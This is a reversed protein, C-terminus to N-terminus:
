FDSTLFIIHSPSFKRRVSNSNPNTRFENKESNSGRFVWYGFIKLLIIVSLIMFHGKWTPYGSNKVVTLYRAQGSYVFPVWSLDGFALMFGFGDTTIDMTTLIAPEFYLADLVYIAQFVCVLALSPSMELLSGNSAALGFNLLAWGILGPRLECFYKFDFDGIRPNLEHGIFFDYLMIGSNGGLALLADRNLKARVYVFAAISISLLNSATLLAVYNERFFNPPIYGFNLGLFFLGFSVLCARFALVVCLKLFATLYFSVM